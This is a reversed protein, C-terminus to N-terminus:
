RRGTETKLDDVLRRLRQGQSALESVAQASQQMSDSAESSLRQVAEINRAIEESAASQEESATAISRVQDTTQDVLAVIEKLARGSADALGTAAAITAAAKEVNAINTSAGQQIGRIATDVERTAQM